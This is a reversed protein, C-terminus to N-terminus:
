QNMKEALEVNEARGADEALAKRTLASGDYKLIQQALESAEANRKLRALAKFLYVGGDIVSQRYSHAFSDYVSNKPDLADIAARFLTL